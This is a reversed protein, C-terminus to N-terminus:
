VRIGGKCLINISGDEHWHNVIYDYMEEKTFHVSLNYIHSFFLAKTVGDTNSPSVAWQELIDLRADLDNIYTDTQSKTYADIQDKTFHITEDNIHNIVSPDIPPLSVVNWDIATTTVNINSLATQIATAISKDVYIKTAPNYATQPNYIAVNDKTLVSSISAKSGILNTNDTLQSIDTPITGRFYKNTTGEPIMDTNLTVVPGTEGNISIIGSVNGGTGTIPQFSYGSGKLFLIFGQGTAVVNGHNTYTGPTVTYYFANVGETLPNSTPSILGGFTYGKVFQESAILTADIIAEEQTLKYIPIDGM